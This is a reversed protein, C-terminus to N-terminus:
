QAGKISVDAYKGDEKDYTGKLLQEEYCLSSKKFNFIGEVDIAASLLTYAKHYDKLNAYFDARRKLFWFFKENNMIIKGGLNM